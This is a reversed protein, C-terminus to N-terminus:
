YCRMNKMCTQICQAAASPQTDSLTWLIQTRCDRVIARCCVIFRGEGVDVPDTRDAQAFQPDRQIAQDLDQSARDSQSKAGYAIARSTYLTAANQTSYQGSTIARTCAAIIVDAGGISTCTKWDDAAAPPVAFLAGAILLCAATVRLVLMPSQM